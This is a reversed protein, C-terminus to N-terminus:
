EACVRPDKWPNGPGIELWILKKLGYYEPLGAPIQATRRFIFPHGFGHLFHNPPADEGHLIIGSQDSFTLKPADLDTEYNPLRIILRKNGDVFNPIRTMAMSFLQMINRQLQTNESNATILIGTDNSISKWIAEAVNTLNLACVVGLLQPYAPAQVPQTPQISSQLREIEQRSAALQREATERLQREAALANSDATAIPHSESALLYVGIVLGVMCASILAIAMQRRGTEKLRKWGVPSAYIPLGALILVASILPPLSPHQPDVFHRIMEEVGGMPVLFGLTGLWNKVAGAWTESAADSMRIGLLRFLFM